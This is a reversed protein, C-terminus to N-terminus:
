EFRNLIKVLAENHSRRKKTGTGLLCVSHYKGYKNRYRAAVDREAMLKEYQEAYQEWTINRKMYMNLLEKTPAFELDHIYVAGTLQPIFFSLDNEKTFGCLQNTNRLRVDLVLDAKEFLLKEFFDKAKIEYASLLFINQMSKM